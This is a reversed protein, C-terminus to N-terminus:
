LLSPSFDRLWEIDSAYFDRIDQNGLLLMLPRELSLGFALIPYASGLAKSVEERFIGAGGLEIWEKRKDFYVEIELSPETYPFYSPRFRIRDFGLKNYFTELIGMLDSFTVEDSIVIGETQYFEALHKFDIAENRFVKGISFYKGPGKNNVIKRASVATTHTRLVRQRAIEEKWPEKWLLEQYNKVSSVLSPDPLDEQGELYFTDALDRAPHDQPQLLADFCWFSSIIYNGEMEEFGMESFISRIKEMFYTLPHKKGIYLREQEDNISFPKLNINKYEKSRILSSTISSVYEKYDEVEGKETLELIINKQEKKSVLKRKILLSVNNGPEKGAYIAELVKRQLYLEPKQKVVIKGDKIDIWGNKKAWMVGIRKEEDSLESIPTGDLLAVKEEPFGYKLYRLGEETIFYIPKVYQKVNILGKEALLQASSLATNKDKLDDVDLRKKKKLLQLLEKPKM